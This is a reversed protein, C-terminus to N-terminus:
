EGSFERTNSGSGSGYSNDILFSLSNSQKPKHAKGNAHPETLGFFSCALRQNRSNTLTYDHRQYVAGNIVQNTPGLYEAYYEMRNPQILLKWMNNYGDGIKDM